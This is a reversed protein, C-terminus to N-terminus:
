VSVSQEDFSVFVCMLSFSINLALKIASSLKILFYVTFLVM